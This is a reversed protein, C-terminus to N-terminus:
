VRSIARARFLEEVLQLVLQKSIHYYGIDMLVLLDYGKEKGVLVEEWRVSLEENLM